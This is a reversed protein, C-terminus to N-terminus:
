PLPVGGLSSAPTSNVNSAGENTDPGVAMAEVIRSSVGEQHLAVLATPSLDFESRSKRIVAIIADDSLGGKVLTVIDSNHLPAAGNNQAPSRPTWLLFVLAFVAMTSSKRLLNM